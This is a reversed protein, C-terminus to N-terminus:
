SSSLKARAVEFTDTNIEIGIFERKLKKSVLGTTGSGMMPDLVIQNEVTLRSIVHEAEIVSQEWDHRVKEPKDSDVLDSIYDVTNIKPGKRFWLLPKYKISIKRNHERAFSGQLKVALMWHYELGADLFYGIVQPIIANGVYFVVSGGTKLVRMAVIALGRYLDLSNKDYPPDTFVLDISNDKITRTEDIFDGCSISINELLPSPSPLTRTTSKAQEMLRDRHEERIVNRYAKDKSMKGNDVRELLPAFKYPNNRAAEVIKKEKKLQGTSVGVYGAVIEVSKKDRNEEQFPTLNAGKEPRHRLRKNEIEELIAVRESTTFDKRVANEHFEGKIIDDLDVVTVPVEYWGLIKAAELRRQGAILENRQNIVVPHLLGIEKVSIALTQIDGLDKRFRNGIKINAVKVRTGGATNFLGEDNM